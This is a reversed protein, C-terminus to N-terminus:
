TPVKPSYFDDRFWPSENRDFVKRLWDSVARIRAASQVNPHYTLWMDDHTKLDLDLPVIGHVCDGVYTPLLGIGLGNQIASLMSASSNTRYCMLNVARALDFWETWDGEDSRYAFHDLLRHQLLDEPKRPAGHRELYERSAWPVFHLTGLRVAILDPAEPMRYRISLDSEMNLVDAPDISCQFEISIGPHKNQFELLKPTLWYAALGDTVSIRVPGELRKDSGFVNRQIELVTQEMHSAANLISEGENTLMVGSPLRDFLRVGLRHELSEIRRSITPQTVGLDSAAKSFSGAKSTALFFRFDDWSQYPEPSM